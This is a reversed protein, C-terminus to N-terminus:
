LDPLSVVGCSASPAPIMIPLSVLGTTEIVYSLADSLTLTFLVMAPVISEAETALTALLTLFANTKPSPKVAVFVEYLPESATEIM